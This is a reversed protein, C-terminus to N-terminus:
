PLSPRGHYCHQPDFRLDVGLTKGAAFRSWISPYHSVVTARTPWGEVSTAPREAHVELRRRSIYTPPCAFFRLRNSSSSSRTWRQIGLPKLASQAHATGAPICSTWLGLSRSHGHKWAPKKFTSTFHRRREKPRALSLGEQRWRSRYKLRQPAFRSRFTSFTKRYRGRELGSHRLVFNVVSAAPESRSALLHLKLALCVEALSMGDLDPPRDDRTRAKQEDDMVRLVEDVHCVEDHKFTASISVLFLFLSFTFPSVDDNGYFIRPPEVSGNRSLTWCGKAVVVFRKRARTDPDGSLDDSGSPCRWKTAFLSSSIRGASPTSATLENTRHGSVRRVHEHRGVVCCQRQFEQPRSRRMDHESTFHHRPNRVASPKAPVASGRLLPTQSWSSFDDPPAVLKINIAPSASATMEKTISECGQRFMATHSVVRCQRVIEQPHWRRM